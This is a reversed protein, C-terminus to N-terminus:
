RLRAPNATLPSGFKEPPDGSDRTRVNVVPVRTSSIEFLTALALSGNEGGNAKCGDQPVTVNFPAYSSQGSPTETGDLFRFGFAYSYGGDATYFYHIVNECQGVYTQRGETSVAQIAAIQVSSLVTKFDAALYKFNDGSTFHNQFPLDATFQIVTWGGGDVLM